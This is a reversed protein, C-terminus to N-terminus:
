ELPARVTVGEVKQSFDSHLYALARFMNDRIFLIGHIGVGREEFDSVASTLGDLVAVASPVPSWGEDLGDYLVVAVWHIDVLLGRVAGELGRLNYHTALMGPLQAAAVGPQLVTQLVHACRDVSSRTVVSKHQIFYHSLFTLHESKQAKYHNKLEQAVSMLIHLQWMIRSAARMHSYSADHSALLHQINLAEHEAPREALVFTQSERRYYAGVKVFLASKGTGRRGVIFHRDTSRTLAKYDATQLFANELM